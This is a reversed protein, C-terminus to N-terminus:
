DETVSIYSFYILSVLADIWLYRIGIFQAVVISDKLTKPLSSVLIGREMEKLSQLTTLVSSGEGWCYSLAIYQAREGTTQHLRIEDGDIGIELVRKPLCPNVPNTECRNTLDRHLPRKQHGSMCDVLWGKLRQLCDGGSVRCSSSIHNFVVQDNKWPIPILSSTDDAKTLKPLM